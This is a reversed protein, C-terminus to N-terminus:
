RFINFLLHLYILLDGTVGQKKMEYYVISAAVFIAILIIVSYWYIQIPGIVSQINPGWKWSLFKQIARSIEIRNDTM